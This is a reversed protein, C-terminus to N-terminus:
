WARDLRVRPDGAQVRAGAAALIERAEDLLFNIGIEELITLSTDHIAEIQDGSLLEITPLTNTLQGRTAQRFGTAARRAKMEDCDRGRRRSAM